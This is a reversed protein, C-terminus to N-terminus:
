NKLPIVFTPVNFLLERFFYDGLKRQYFVSWMFFLFYSPLCAYRCSRSKMLMESIVHVGHFNIHSVFVSLLYPSKMFRRVFNIPNCLCLLGCRCCLSKMLRRKCKWFLSLLSIADHTLPSGNQHVMVINPEQKYFDGQLFWHKIGGSPLLFHSNRSQVPKFICLIKYSLHFHLLLHPSCVTSVFLRRSYLPDPTLLAFSSNYRRRYQLM